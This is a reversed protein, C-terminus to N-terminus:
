AALRVREELEPAQRDKLDHYRQIREKSKTGRARAGAHDM